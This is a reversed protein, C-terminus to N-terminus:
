VSMLFSSGEGGWIPAPEFDSENLGLALVRPTEPEDTRPTEVFLAGVEPHAAIYAAAAEPGLLYFATSLADAEAATPALVTVSAPGTAAPEGTRPDLIHGYVRGGAEFQQFAAGSTGLGRNRLRITGLPHEPRAPNRLAVEWRGGLTGPPSGLAYLSSQGGHVLASTPWWHDRLVRAARDIAYGKGISGLNIVIGPRDFAVTQRQPDLILHNSGTRARADALTEPDPVRRPGRVFGWALSLAGSTVDYAGGTRSALELAQQLLGFLGPEVEVPGLHATANLRSVESDDRYVTLQTELADIVDLARTALDVAAPVQAPLRVDFFSGMAARRARILDFRGAPESRLKSPDPSRRGADNGVGLRGFLQRRNVRRQPPKVRRRSLVEDWNAGGQDVGL